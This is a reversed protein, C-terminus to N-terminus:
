RMTFPEMLEIRTGDPDFLNLQWKNNRGIRPAALPYGTKQSRRSLVDVAQQMDPVMLAIHHLSGLQQRGVPGNVLMYEIYDTGEPVRMNIWSTTTDNAGGRWIEAFGLVDGYFQNAAQTNAITIGTHLIRRSIAAPQNDTAGTNPNNSYQVFTITHQDPDHITFSLMGERRTLALPVAVRKSQLYLRLTEADTTQFAIGMLREDQNPPLGDVLLIQQRQSIRVFFSHNHHNGPGAAPLLKYGLLAYYFAEAKGANSVQLQVFAIGTIPPRKLSQANGAFVLVQLVAVCCYKKFGANMVTNKLQVICGPPQM